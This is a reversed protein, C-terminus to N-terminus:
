MERRDWLGADRQTEFGAAPRGSPECRLADQAAAAWQGRRAVAFRAVLVEGSL